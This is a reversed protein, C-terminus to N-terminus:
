AKGAEGTLALMRRAVERWLEVGGMEGRMALAGIREAVRLPAKDGHHRLLTAAM